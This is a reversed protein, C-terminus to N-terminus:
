KEPAANTSAMSSVVQLQNSQTLEIEPKDHYKKIKGTLEVAKGKLASLDGFQNTANPFIVGTFPSDPHPLDLNIFVINPRVTVQAVKGTVIMTEDYHKAADGTGIKAPAPSNTGDAFACVIATSFIALSFLTRM